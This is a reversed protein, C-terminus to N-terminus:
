TGRQGRPLGPGSQARLFEREETRSAGQPSARPFGQKAPQPDGHLDDGPIGTKDACALASAAYQAARAVVGRSTAAVALAAVCATAVARVGAVSRVRVLLVAAASRVLVLLLAATAGLASRCLLLSLARCLLALLVCQLPMVAALAVRCM